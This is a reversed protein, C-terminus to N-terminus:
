GKDNQKFKIDSNMNSLINKSWEGKFALSTNELYGKVGDRMDPNSLSLPYISDLIEKSSWIILDTSLMLCFKFEIDPWVRLLSIFTDTLDGCPLCDLHRLNWSFSLKTGKQLESEINVAGGTALSNQELFALGLGQNRTKRNTYFPHTVKELDTSSIGKGNDELTCRLFSDDGIEMQVKIMTANANICNEVLDYIHNSLNKM